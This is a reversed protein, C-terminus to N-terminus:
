PGPWRHSAWRMSTWTSWSGAPRLCRGRITLMRRQVRLADIVSLDPELAQLADAGERLFSALAVPDPPQWTAVCSARLEWLRGQSDGPSLVSLAGSAEAAARSQASQPLGVSRARAVDDGGPARRGGAM